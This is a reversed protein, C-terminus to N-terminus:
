CILWTGFSREFTVACTIIIAILVLVILLPLHSRALVRIRDITDLISMFEGKEGGQAGARPLRSQRSQYLALDGRIEAYSTTFQSESKAQM